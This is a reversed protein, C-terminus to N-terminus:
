LEAALAQVNKKQEPDFQFPLLVSSLNENDSTCKRLIIVKKNFHLDPM